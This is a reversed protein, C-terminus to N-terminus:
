AKADFSSTSIVSINKSEDLMTKFVSKNDDKTVFESSMSYGRNELRKNLIDINSAILDLAEDDKLFFKTKVNKQENMMVHVDVPGLNDMDLHLLASVNGDKQSLSKKNTYVYLEGSADKNNLKLPIQVYNFAQNIENMFNLNNNLNSATEGLPTNSVSSSSLSNTLSKIQSNLREYLSSINDKQLVQEPKLMFKNGIAEKLVEKMREDGFIARLDKAVSETKEPIVDHTIKDVIQNIVDKFSNNNISNKDPNIINQIDKDLVGLNRLSNVLADNKPLLVQDQSAEVVEPNPASVSSMESKYSNIIAEDTVAESEEAFLNLVTNQTFELIESFKSETALLEISQSFSEAIDNLSSTIQHEYNLYNDFQTIMEPKLPLELRTMTSLIKPDYEPFENIHKNMAFLSEKSIPLGEEMMAKVMYQMKPNDPLGANKLAATVNSDPNLNVFMPSLSINKSSSSNVLFTMLQGEKPIMDSSVKAELLKNPGLSLLIMDEESMLVRGTITSGVGLSNLIEFGNQLNQEILSLKADSSMAVDNGVDGTLGATNIQNAISNINM